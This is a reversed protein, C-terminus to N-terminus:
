SYNSVHRWEGYTKIAPRWNFVPVIKDKCYTQINCCALLLLFNFYLLKALILSM